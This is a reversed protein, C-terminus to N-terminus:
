SATAHSARYRTSPRATQESAHEGSGPADDDDDDDVVTAAAAVALGGKGARGKSSGSRAASKGKPLAAKRITKKPKRVGALVSNSSTSPGAPPKKKAASARCPKLAVPRQAVDGGGKAAAAAPDGRTTCNLCWSGGAGAGGGEAATMWRVHSPTCASHNAYPGRQCGAENWKNRFHKVIISAPQTRQRDWLLSVGVGQKWIILLKSVMRSQSKCLRKIRVNGIIHFRVRVLHAALMHSAVLVRPQETKIAAYGQVDACM